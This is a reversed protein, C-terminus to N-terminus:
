VAQALAGTAVGPRAPEPVAAARPPQLLRVRVGKAPMFTIGRRVGREPRRSASTLSARELVRRIVAQMEFTAFSAGLCRRTGGGFPLWTYTDPSDPGLYREPSFSRAQPYCDERRHITAISPNIEVGPPILYDGLQFPEGRVVRGVGMIVPRLRLTEKVVADLYLDGNSGPSGPSGNSSSSGPSGSSAPSGDFGSSGNSGHAGSSALEARLRELVRPNRLLLEFAWALATATTEHGAVLLTVLEDRLEKDGLARGDEDRALLLMSFVDERRDLDEAARRRAIEAYILQDLARRRDEFRQGAGSGVRGGTLALALVGVRSGVPDLLARIRQKLEQQRAQAEVGFVARIIVDLTLSQMQPLLTFTEGVPWSNISRDAADRIVQAYARMRDGHFPPLMLKRERLHEAGDLLLVSRAGVVPGLVANAEGARLVEPSGRFVQKVLEPAFVMVFGSDFLSSFTVVDGYRRRCADIFTSPALIFGLTQLARPLRPGPPLSVASM